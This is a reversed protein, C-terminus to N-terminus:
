GPKVVAPDDGWHGDPLMEIAALVEFLDVLSVTLRNFKQGPDFVYDFDEIFGRFRTWWSEAVPDWRCIAAQLLPRIKGYFPGFTNTPDLLGHRDTIQVVARGTDTRDQEYQRGRDITYSAVLSSSIDDIRTWTPAWELTPDDFAISFRGTPEAV